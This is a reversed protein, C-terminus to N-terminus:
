TSATRSREFANLWLELNLARWIGDSDRWRRARVDAEIAGFAYLGRGRAAPDLLVDAIRAVWAPERLWRAQPTEFGIKDRRALVEPPAIDRVVDRVILKTIGNRYVFEAPLSFAYEAIRRDLFPLRVERSHAMSDRDAYRLLTPLHTHFSQRLLERALPSTFGDAAPEPPSALRVSVDHVDTAAYPTITRRRYWRQALVRLRGSPLARVVDGRDQSSALGRLTEWPGLSRLAWGKSGPYGAFLEDAGQGDLLVTVGAEHAARMVRWQAYISTSGFPEEQFRVLADLDDLLEAATPEVAHHEVVGAAKAIADAYRWEDREFGSFRATFAHRRHDGAIQASLLVIASSDVGGSLSTGVPVDARLRLRISDVLLDGLEEVADDYDSPVARRQPFWYRRVVARGDRFRLLHAGPLRHINAFFSQDIAPM